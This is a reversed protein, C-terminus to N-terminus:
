MAGRYLATPTPSPDSFAYLVSSGAYLRGDLGVAPSSIVRSRTRYSWALASSRAFGYLVYDNSGAYVRGDSGIAPSSRVIDGTLYSWELLGGSTVAYIREDDCGFCVRGGSGVAPSSIVSWATAYTWATGGARPGEYPSLGTHKVDHRFMPWPGSDLQGWAHGTHFAYLIFLPYAIYLVATLTRKMFRRTRRSIKRSTFAPWASGVPTIKPLGATM